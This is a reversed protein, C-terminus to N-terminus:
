IILVAKVREKVAEDLFVPCSLERHLTVAGVCSLLLLALQADFAAELGYHALEHVFGYTFSQM